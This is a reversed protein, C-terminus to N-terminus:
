YVKDSLLLESFYHKQSNNRKPKTPMAAESKKQLYFELRVLM